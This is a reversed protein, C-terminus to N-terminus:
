AADIDPREVAELVQAAFFPFSPPSGGLITDAARYLAPAFSELATGDALVSPELSADSVVEYKLLDLPPTLVELKVSAPVPRSAPSSPSPSATSAEAAGAQNKFFRFLGGVGM